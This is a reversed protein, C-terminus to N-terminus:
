KLRVPLVLYLFEDDNKPEIKIPILPGNFVIKVEDCDAHKLADLMYRNNFAIKELADGQMEVDFKDNVMGLTSECQLYVKSNEVKMVVSIKNTVIISVRDISLAFKKPDVYITTISDKPIANEYNIFEGEILRTVIFYGGIRFIAHSKSIEITTKAEENDSLLKCIENLTKSPVIFSIDNSTVSLKKKVLAVRYGDVSVVSLVNNSIKFMSGCCVPSQTPNQSVAFLTKIIMNKLTIDELEFSENVGVEPITPYDEKKIGMIKYETESDSITAMLREDTSISVIPGAMKKLMDRLLQSNLVLAGDEKSKIELSGLIGIDLDYGTLNLKNGSCELLIGELAPIANVRSSIALSVNNVVESLLQLDCSFKM